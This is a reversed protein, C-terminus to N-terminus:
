RQLVVFQILRVSRRHRRLAAECFAHRDRRHRDFRRHGAPHVRHAQRVRRRAMQRDHVFRHAGPVAPRM